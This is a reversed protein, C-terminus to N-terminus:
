RPSMTFSRTVVEGDRGLTGQDQGRITLRVAGADGTRIEIVKEATLPVRTGPALERNVVRQGDTLVRLWVTRTTVLETVLAPATTPVPQAPAPARTVQAAPVAPTAPTDTRTLFWMGLAVVALGAAAAVALPTKRDRAPQGAPSVDQAPGSPVRATEVATFQELAPPLPRSHPEPTVREHVAPPRAPEARPALPQNVAGRSDPHRLSRVFGDFEDSAAKRQARYRAIDQQFRELEELTTGAGTDRGREGQAM